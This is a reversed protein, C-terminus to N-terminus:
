SGLTIGQTPGPVIGQAEMADRRAQAEQEARWVEAEQYALHTEMREDLSVPQGDALRQEMAIVAQKAADAQAFDM